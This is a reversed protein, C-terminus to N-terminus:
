KIGAKKFFLDSNRVVKRVANKAFNPGTGPTTYNTFRSKLDEQYVAYNKTWAIYGRKGQVIKLKDARLNGHKKPTKHEAERDIEDLMFRIALGTRNGVESLVQATNSTIKVSM